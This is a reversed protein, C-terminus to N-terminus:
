RLSRSLLVVVLILSETGGGLERIDIQAQDTRTNILFRECM